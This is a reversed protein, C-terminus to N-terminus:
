LKKWSKPDFALSDVAYGQVLRTLVSSDKLDLPFSYYKDPTAIVCAFYKPEFGGLNIRAETTKKDGLNVNNAVWGNKLYYADMKAATEANFERDRLEYAFSKDNTRWLSGEIRYNIAGLAASAHMVKVHKGDSLYLHFWSPSKSGKLAVYLDAKDRKLFVKNGDGIEHQEADSWEGDALIGDTQVANLLFLFSTIAIALKM